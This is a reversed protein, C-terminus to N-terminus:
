LSASEAFGVPIQLAALRSKSPSVLEHLPLPWIVTVDEVEQPQSLPPVIVEAAQEPVVVAPVQGPPPLQTTINVTFAEPEKWDSKPKGPIGRDSVIDLLEVM